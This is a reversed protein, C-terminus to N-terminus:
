YCESLGVMDKVHLFLDRTQNVFLNTKIEEKEEAMIVTVLMMLMLGAVVLVAMLLPTQLKVRAM